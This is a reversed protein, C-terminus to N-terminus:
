IRRQGDTRGQKGGLHREDGAIGTGALKGALLAVGEEEALVLVIGIVFRRALKGVLLAVLVHHDNRGIVRRALIVQIAELADVATRKLILDVGLDALDVVGGLNGLDACGACVRQVDEQGAAHADVEDLLVRLRAHELARGQECRAERTVLIHDLGDTRCHFAGEVGAM